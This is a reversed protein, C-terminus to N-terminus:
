HAPYFKARKLNDERCGYYHVIVIDKTVTTVKALYCWSAAENCVAVFEGVAFPTSTAIDFQANKAKRPTVAKWPLLNSVAREYKQLNDQQLVRYTTTSLRDVIKCPGRWSSVHNLRRGTADLEAKTPPFRVKM